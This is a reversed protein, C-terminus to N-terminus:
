QYLAVRGRYLKPMDVSLLSPDLVRFDPTAAVTTLVSIVGNQNNQCGRTIIQTPYDRQTSSDSVSCAHVEVSCNVREKATRYERCRLLGALISRM